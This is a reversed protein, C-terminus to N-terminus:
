FPLPITLGKRLWYELETTLDSTVPPKASAQYPPRPPTPEGTFVLRLAAPAFGSARNRVADGVAVTIEHTIPDGIMECGMPMQNQMVIKDDIHVAHGTRKDLCLLSLRQREGERPPVITRAFLMVPLAAPQHRTLAHRVITAPVPWLMEGSERSVAWVAGTVPQAPEEGPVMMPLASMLGIRGFRQQEEGTEQRGVIVLLRDQWPMVQLSQLGAPMDNLPVSFRPGGDVSRGVDLLTLRGKPEVV